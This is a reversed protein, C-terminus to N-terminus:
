HFGVQLHREPTAKGSNPNISRPPAAALSFTSQAKLGPRALEDISLLLYQPCTEAFAPWAATARERVENLADESSLHVFTFRCAPSKGGHRIPRPPVAEAGRRQAAARHARPLLITQRTSHVVHWGRACCWSPQDSM